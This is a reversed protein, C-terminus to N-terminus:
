ANNKHLVDYKSSWYILAEHQNTDWLVNALKSVTAAKGNEQKWVTLLFAILGNFDREFRYQHQQIKSRLFGLEIFTDEWSNKYGIYDKVVNIDKETVPKPNNKLEIIEKNERPSERSKAKKSAFHHYYTNGVHTNPSNIIQIVNVVPKEPPKEYSSENPECYDDDDPEKEEVHEMKKISKTPIKENDNQAYINEKNKRSTPSRPPSPIADITLDADSDLM